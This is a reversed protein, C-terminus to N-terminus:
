NSELVGLTIRACKKLISKEEEITIDAYTDMLKIFWDDDILRLMEDCLLKRIQKHNKYQEETLDDWQTLVFMLSHYMCNHDNFDTRYYLYRKNNIIFENTKGAEMTKLIDIQDDNVYVYELHGASNQMSVIQLDPRKKLSADTYESTKQETETSGFYVDKRKNLRKRKV